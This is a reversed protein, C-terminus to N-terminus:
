GSAADAVTGGTDLGPVAAGSRRLRSGTHEVATELKRMLETFDEPSRSHAAFYAAGSILASLAETYRSGSDAPAEGPPASATALEEFTDVIPFTRQDRVEALEPHRGAELPVTAVFAAMLPNEAHLTRAVQSARLVAERLSASGNVAATLRDLNRQRIDHALTVYLDRKTPFHRYLAGTTLGAGDAIMKNTAGDYGYRGFCRLASEVIRARTESKTRGRPRGKARAETGAM